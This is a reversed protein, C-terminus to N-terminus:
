EPAGLWGRLAYARVSALRGPAVEIDARAALRVDRFRSTLAAPADGRTLLWVTRDPPPALRTTLEYHDQVERQAKWAIPRVGRARWQYAAQALLLRDDALVLPAPAPGPVPAWDAAQTSLRAELETFARDWGRMRVFVDLKSPLPQGLLRFLDGAHVVVAVLALNLAVAALLPRTRAPSQAGAPQAGTAPGLQMMAWGFALCSGIHAPAAWNLNARAMWSQATAVLLLPLTLALVFAASGPLPVCAPAPQRVAQWLGRGAWWAVLPGLVLVQGVLFKLAELAGGPRRAQTTIDATHQLTPFGHQANWFLNPALLLLAVGAALWPGPRLLGRRPGPLLWLLPLASLAFAALTYKALLGLGCALGLAAWAVLTDSHQARWLAWAALTWALLLPADTSAYLGLLGVMPLSLFALAAPLGIRPHLERGLGWLAVATVPYLLMPLAKVALVGDGCLGRGLALIWAILPPKSYYGWAPERSWDWYQAEDYFLTWDLHWVLGMRWLMLVTACALLTLLERRADPSM